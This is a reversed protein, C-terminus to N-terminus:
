SVEINSKKPKILNAEPPKGYKLYYEDYKEGEKNEAEDITKTLHLEFFKFKNKIIKNEESESFHEKIRRNLDNTYGVYIFNKYKDYLYYYGIKQPIFDLKSYEYLESLNM